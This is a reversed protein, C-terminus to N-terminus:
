SNVSIGVRNLFNVPRPAVIVKSSIGSAVYGKQSFISKVYELFNIINTNIQINFNLMDTILPDTTNLYLSNKKQYNVPRGFM